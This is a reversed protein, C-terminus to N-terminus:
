FGFLDDLSKAPTAPSSSAPKARPKELSRRRAENWEAESSVLIKTTTVRSESLCNHCLPVQRDPMSYFIVSLEDPVRTAPVMRRDIAAAYRRTFMRFVNSYRSVSSCTMCVDTHTHLVFSEFQWSNRDKWDEPVSLIDPASIIAAAPTVSVASVTPLGHPNDSTTMLSEPAAAPTPTPLPFLDLQPEPAPNPFPVM